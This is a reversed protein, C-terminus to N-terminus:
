APRAKGCRVPRTPPTTAAPTWCSRALRDQAEQSLFQVDSLYLIGGDARRLAGQNERPDTSAALGFVRTVRRSRM